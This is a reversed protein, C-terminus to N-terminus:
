PSIYKSVATKSIRINELIFLNVCLDPINHHEKNM